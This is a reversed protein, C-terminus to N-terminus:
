NIIFQELNEETVPYFYRRTYEKAKDQLIRFEGNPLNDIFDITALLNDPDSVAWKLGDYGFLPDPKLLEGLELYIVPIGLSLAELSVTSSTYLLVDAWKLSEKISVDKEVKVGYKPQSILERWDKKM